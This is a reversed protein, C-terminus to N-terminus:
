FDNQDVSNGIEFCNMTEENEDSTDWMDDGFAVKIEESSLSEAVVQVAPGTNTVFPAEEETRRRILEARPRRKPQQPRTTQSRKHNQKPADKIQCPIPLRRPESRASFIDFDYPKRHTDAEYEKAKPCATNGNFIRPRNRRRFKAAPEQHTEISPKMSAIAKLHQQYCREHDLEDLFRNAAGTRM